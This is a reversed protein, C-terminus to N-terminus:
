KMKPRNQVQARAVRSSIFIHIYLQSSGHLCGVFNGSVLGRNPSTDYFRHMELEEHSSGGVGQHSDFEAHENESLSSEESSSIENKGIM